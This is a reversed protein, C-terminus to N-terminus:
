RQSLREGKRVPKLRQPVGVASLRGQAFGFSIQQEIRFERPHGMERMRQSFHPSQRHSRLAAQKQNQTACCKLAAMVTRRKEGSEAASTRRCRLAQKERDKEVCGVGRDDQAPSLVKIDSQKLQLYYALM